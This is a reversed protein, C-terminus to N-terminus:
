DLTVERRADASRYIADIVRQVAVGEEITNTDHEREGDLVDLFYEWEALIGDTRAVALETATLDGHADGYVTPGDDGHIPITAGAEDGLVQVHRRGERNSAWACDLHITTGDACRVFARVTDDVDFTPDPTPEGGWMSLYTYDDKNGFHAGATASVTEVDPYDLMSLAVALFHVGTDILAGGGSVEKRTFWSGLQPIGRRRVYELNLDYVNGFEGARVRRRVAQIDTSFVHTFGVLVDGDSRDAAAQVREAAALSHALPKEVFVHLDRELAAVACEAHLANPVAVLVVDLDADELMTEYAEYTDTVDYTEAFAERADPAIDAVAAVNCGIETVTDAHKRAITGAGIFGIDYM